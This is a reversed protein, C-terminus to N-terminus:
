RQGNPKFDLNVMLIAHEIATKAYKKTTQDVALMGRGLGVQGTSLSKLSDSM